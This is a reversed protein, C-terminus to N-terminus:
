RALCTAREKASALLARLVPAEVGAREAARLVSGSIADLESPRGAAVDLSTSTSSEGPLGDVFAVMAQVDIAVGDSAAVAAAEQMAGIMRERWVPDARAGGITTGAASTVAALASLRTLKDWMIEAESAGIEVEVCPVRLVEAVREVAVAPLTDSAIALLAGTSYQVIRGPEQIHSSIRGVTGALVTPGLRERLFALHELGNLLPLVAGMRVTEPDIRGLASALADAKTAVVLVDVPETLREVLEPAHTLVGDPAELVLGRQRIAGESRPGALCIVRRGARGLRVALVGGVGGPGLVAVTASM